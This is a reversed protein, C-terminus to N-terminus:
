KFVQEVNSYTSGNKGRGVRVLVQCDTGVLDEIDFGQSLEFDNLERGLLGRLIDALKSKATLNPRTSQMVMKGDADGRLTFEFGLRPGYSNEFQKINTLKAPYVGDGVQDPEQTDSPKVLIAM